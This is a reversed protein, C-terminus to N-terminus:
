AIRLPSGYTSVYEGTTLGDDDDSCGYELIKLVGAEDARRGGAALQL